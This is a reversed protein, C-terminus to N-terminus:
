KERRRRTAIVGLVLVGFPVLFVTGYFVLTDDESRHIIPSDKESVAPIIPNENVPLWSTIDKLLHRNGLKKFNLLNNGFVDTDALVMIRAEHQTGRTSTRTIAVALPYNAGAETPDQNLNKNEDRFTNDLATLVIDRKLQHQNETLSSTQILELSAARRMVTVLSTNRTLTTVAPHSSYRNSFIFERDARTRTLPVYSRMHALPTPSYRLGFLGLLPNITSPDREADLVILLRLNHRGAERLVDLEADLFSELPDLVILFAADEPISETSGETLGLPKLVYQSKELLKRLSKLTLRGDEKRSVKLSREGHGQTFYATRKPVTVKILAEIVNRDLHRLPSRAVRPRDGIRIQESAPGRQISIHGNERIGTRRATATALAHDVREVSLRPNLAKLPEFYSEVRDGVENTSPWFLIIRVDKTLERVVQETEISAIARNGASLEWKQDHRNLLFNAWFFTILMLSFGVARDRAHLVKATETFDGPQIAVEMSILPLACVIGLAPWIGSLISVLQRSSDENSILRLAEYIVLTMALGVSTIILSKRIRPDLPSPTSIFYNLTVATLSACISVITLKSLTSPSLVLVREAVYCSVFGFFIVISPWSTRIRDM